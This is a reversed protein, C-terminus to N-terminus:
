ICKRKPKETWTSLFEILPEHRHAPLLRAIQLLREEFITIAITAPDIAPPGDGATVRAAGRGTALWEFAVDTIQAVRALNTINPVTGQSREWQVVASTCVGVLRALETKTLGARVRAQRVRNSLHLSSVTRLTSTNKMWCKRKLILDSKQRIAHTFGASSAREKSIRIIPSSAAMPTVHEITPTM